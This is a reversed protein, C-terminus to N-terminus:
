WLTSHLHQHFSRHRHLHVDTLYHYSLDGAGNGYGKIEQLMDVKTPLVGACLELKLQSLRRLEVM